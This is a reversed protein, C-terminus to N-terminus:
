LPRDDVIGGGHLAISRTLTTADLFSRDHTVLLVTGEFRDLATELQEIAPLDLHNTPEDLVLTNVGTAQFVALVARTREGPSLRDAPRLLHSAGLGFKALVARCEGPVLGTARVVSDLVTDDDTLLARAQDLRGVAVSRGSRQQGRNLPLHGFLAMLLTTKGQGNEGVIAVREGARVTLSLPGLRFDGLIVEADVLEAVLDGSREAQGISFQLEWPVWPKDVEDLRELARETQRAKSALKETKEIRFGRAARDNDVPNRREGAVGKTAWNRQTRARDSLRSREREYNDFRRQAEDRAIEKARLYGEFSENYRTASRRNPDLEVIATAVRALFRRDHSVVMQPRPTGLVFAELLKLGGQDLDNTPEDLLLVDHRSILLAALGVRARQGGSLAGTARDAGVRAATLGVEGLVGEVRVDFDAGGLAMWRDLSQQYRDMVGLGPQAGAGTQEAPGDPEALAATAEDLARSASAVGTRRALYHGVTEDSDVDLEQALLGVTADGPVLGVSGTRTEVVGGLAALLSSKGVGNPGVLGLRDGPGITLSLHELLTKGGREVTVDRAHLQTSAHNSTHNSM